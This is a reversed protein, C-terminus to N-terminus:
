DRRRTGVLGVISLFLSVDFAGMTSCASKPTEDEPEPVEEEYKVFLYEYSFQEGWGTDPAIPMVVLTLTESSTIGDIVQPEGSGLDQYTIQDGNKAFWAWGGRYLRAKIM